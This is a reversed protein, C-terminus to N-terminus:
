VPLGDEHELLWRKVDIGAAFGTLSGDSGIIRHCPIIIPVPNAGVARGVAQYAGSSGIAEAVYGYTSTEGYPISQLFEWVSRQFPTGRLDIDVSFETRGGRWYEQLQTVVSRAADVNEVLEMESYRRDVVECFAERTTGPLGIQCVGRGTVAVMAKGLPTELATWYLKTVSM